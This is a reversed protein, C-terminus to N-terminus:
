GGAGRTGGSKKNDLLCNLYRYTKSTLNKWLHYLTSLSLFLPHNFICCWAKPMTNLKYYLICGLKFIWDQLQHGKHNIWFLLLLDFSKNLVNACCTSTSGDRTVSQLFSRRRLRNNQPSPIPLKSTQRSNFPVNGSSNQLVPWEVPAFVYTYM